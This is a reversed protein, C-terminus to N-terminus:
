ILLHAEKLIDFDFYTSDKFLIRSKAIRRKNKALQRLLYIIHANGVNPTTSSCLGFIPLLTCKMPHESLISPTLTGLQDHYSVCFVEHAGTM